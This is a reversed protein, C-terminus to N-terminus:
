QLGLSRKIDNLKEPQSSTESPNGGRSNERIEGGNGGSLLGDIQSDGSAEGRRSRKRSALYAEIEPDVSNGTAEDTRLSSSRQPTAHEGYSTHSSAFRVVGILVGLVLIAGIQVKSRLPALFNNASILSM